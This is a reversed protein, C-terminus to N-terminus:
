ITDYKKFTEVLLPKDQIRELIENFTFWDYAKIEELHLLELTLEETPTYEYWTYQGRYNPTEYEMVIDLVNVAERKITLGIEEKAERIVAAIEDIDETEIGGSVFGWKKDRTHQLLLYKNDNDKIVLLVGKRIDM